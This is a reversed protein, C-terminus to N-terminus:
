KAAGDAYTVKVHSAVGAVDAKGQALVAISGHQAPVIVGEFGGEHFSTSGNVHEDPMVIVTIPGASTEVLLHPVWHGRLWCTHAYTVKGPLADANVGARLLVESLVQTNAPKATDVEATV